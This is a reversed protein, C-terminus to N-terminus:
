RPSSRFENLKSPTASPTNAPLCSSHNRIDGIAAIRQIELATASDFAYTNITGM